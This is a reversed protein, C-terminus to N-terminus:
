DLDTILLFNRDYFSGKVFSGRRRLGKLQVRLAKSTMYNSERIPILHSLLDNNELECRQKYIAKSM